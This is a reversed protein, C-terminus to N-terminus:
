PQSEPPEAQVGSLEAEISEISEISPQASQLTTGCGTANKGGREIEGCGTAFFAQPMPYGALENM